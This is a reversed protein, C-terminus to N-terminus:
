EMAMRVALASAWPCLVVAASLMAGLLLLHPRPSLGGAVAEIAAVAFILAPIFLPLVLVPLLVGGRRVGVTLGAGIGGVLSLIPTALLMALLLVPMAAPDMNLLLALVPSVMVLPLGTTLWHAACKALASLYLPQPSLVILELSGDEFDAQFLRDLSLMSAFLASVLLVGASIRSLVALEPGVGLPFLTVTLLFFAVALAAAGGQRFALRVDRALLAAFGSM